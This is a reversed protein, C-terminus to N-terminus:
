GELILNGLDDTTGRWGPHLLTCSDYQEIIAPGSITEGTRIDGRWYVPTPLTSGIAEFFVPRQGKKIRTRENSGGKWKPFHLKPLLGTAMLLTSVVEVPSSPSSFGYTERHRCHFGEVIADLTSSNVRGNLPLVLHYSQGLYRLALQRQFRMASAPVGQHGLDQRGRDELTCFTAELQESDVESSLRLISHQYDKKIDAVLLGLASFLGPNFPIVVKRIGLEEALSCAHLPGCGGFAMLAFRRPDRGREVSVMRLAKAMHTDIIRIIGMALETGDMEPLHQAVRELARAAKRKYIPMEGGLLARPNLRGLLLHADTVTPKEGGRGYCAPGPHAGASVPGVQPSGASDIWAMTGGGASVEALDITALRLPYGSGRVVRGSHLQGGVEFETVIEPSGGAVAGAKATTGGMDFTILEELGIERGLFAAGMVGSAPGSEVLTAPRHRIAEVTALGGNSQMVLLSAGSQMHGLERELQALYGEVVPGLVANLVTTSTREFEGPEPNVESSLTMAWDSSEQLLIERAGLEHSPNLYSNLFAIACGEVGQSRMRTSLERVGAEDLPIVERGRADIREAVVYRDERGILPPPRRVALNYLEPRAQRGIELIDRFGQTTLLAIHPLRLGLQGFLANTAITTAHALSVLERAEVVRQIRQVTGIVGRQVDSPTTLVKVSALWGTEEEWALVDTFTGGVDVALRYSGM